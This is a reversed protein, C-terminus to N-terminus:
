GFAVAHEISGAGPVDLRDPTGESRAEIRCRGVAVSARDKLDGLLATMLGDLHKRALDLASRDAGASLRLRHLADGARRMRPVDLGQPLPEVRARVEDICQGAAAEWLGSRQVQRGQAVPVLSRTQQDLATGIEISARSNASLAAGSCKAAIYPSRSIILNSTSAPASALAFPVVGLDADKAPRGAEAVYPLVHCLVQEGVARREIQPARNREVSRVVHPGHEGAVRRQESRPHRAMVM